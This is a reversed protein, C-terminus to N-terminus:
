EGKFSLITVDIVHKALAITYLVAIFFVCMYINLFISKYTLFTTIKIHFDMFLAFTSLIAVSGWAIINLLFPYLFVDLLNNEIMKPVAPKYIVSIFVSLAALSIGFISASAGLFTPAYKSYFTLIDQNTLKIPGVVFYILLWIIIPIYFPYSILESYKSNLFKNYYYMIKKLM